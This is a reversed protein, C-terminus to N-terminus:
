NTMTATNSSCCLREKEVNKTGEANSKSNGCGQHKMLALAQILTVQLLNVWTSHYNNYRMKENWTGKDEAQMPNKSPYNLLLCRGNKPPLKVITLPISQQTTTHSTASILYQDAAM